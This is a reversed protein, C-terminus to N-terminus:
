YFVLKGNEVNASGSYVGHTEEAITPSVFVGKDEYNVLDSSTYYYWHKLGGNVEYSYQHFIHYKGNFYALGNPDNLWGHRPELHLNQKWNNVLM